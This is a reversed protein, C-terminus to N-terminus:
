RTLILGVNGKTGIAKKQPVINHHKQQMPKLVTELDSKSKCSVLVLATLFPILIQKM